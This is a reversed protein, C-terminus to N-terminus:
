SQNDVSFQYGRGANFALLMLEIVKPSIDRYKFYYLLSKLFEDIQESSQMLIPINAPNDFVYARIFETCFKENIFVHEERAKDSLQIPKHRLLWYTLYAYIKTTNTKEINQFEKLRYIDTFYDIIVHNLIRESVFAFDELQEQRIYQCLLGNIWDFRDSIKEEGFYDLVGDYTNDFVM